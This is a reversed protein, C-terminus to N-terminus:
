SRYTNCRKTWGQLWRLEVEKQPSNNIRQVLVEICSQAFADNVNQNVDMNLLVQKLGWGKGEYREKPSTGEGKFNVYDILSYMGVESTTLENFRQELIMKQNPEEIDKLILPLALQMRQHIFAIQLSFTSNILDSLQKYESTMKATLFAQKDQWPCDDSAQLWDPLKIGSDKFHQILSPFTETFPSNLGEPFWIFHGIGLSAFAEGDNWAILYEANGGTENIFIKQGISELQETSLEVDVSAKTDPVSVVCLVLPLVFIFLIRM